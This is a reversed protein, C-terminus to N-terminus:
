SKNISIHDYLSGHQHTKSQDGQQKLSFKDNFRFIASWSSDRIHM